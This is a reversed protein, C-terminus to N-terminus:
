EAWFLRNEKRPRAQPEPGIPYGVICNGVGLYNGEVGLQKLIAKGEPSAFVERARNIWCSSLGLAHAANLMNGLMLSGDEVPTVAVDTNVLVTLVVPAGYFPDTDTGMVQANLLSLKDRLEKNTVALIIPSQTGMGTAAHLGAQCITEIDAKSPMRDSYARVSRRTMLDHITQNMNNPKQPHRKTKTLIPPAM